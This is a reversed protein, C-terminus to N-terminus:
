TIAGVAVPFRAHVGFGGPEGPGATLQGDYPAARERMGALGHGSAAAPTGGRGDDTILVDLWEPTRTVTVTARCPGAHKIVNTLAEQVIRYVAEGLDPPLAGPDADVHLDVPVGAAQVQAALAALGPLGPAPLLPAATAEGLLGVVRRLEDLSRRATAEVAELRGSAGATDLQDLQGLAAMTQLVIVSLGHGVEDHMERAIRAREQAAAAQDRQARERQLEAALARLQRTRQERRRFTLGLPWAAALVWWFSVASGGFQFAPDRIEHVAMTAVILPAGIALERPEAYRGLAYMGALMPLFAGLGQSAGIALFQTIDVAAIFALVRLPARRRWWLAAACLLYGLSNVWGPGVIHALQWGPTWVEQQGAAAVVIVVLADTHEPLWNRRVGRWTLSM